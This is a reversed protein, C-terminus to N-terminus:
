RAGKKMNDIAWLPQLNTYHSLRIVDEETKANALPIIHDIHWEGHNSWNMGEVFQDEIHQKAKEWTTGLYHECQRKKKETVYSFCRYTSIRIARKFKYLPDTAIRRKYERAKYEPNKKVWECNIKSHQEANEKKWKQNQERERSGNIKYYAKRKAKDCVICRSSVGDPRSKDKYYEPLPKTEQCSYCKKMPAGKLLLDASKLLLAHRTSFGFPAALGRVREGM